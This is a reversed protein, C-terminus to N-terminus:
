NVLRHLNPDLGFTTRVREVGDWVADLLLEEAAGFALAAVALATLARLAFGVTLINLQPMTRSLFALATGMLFLAILVPGALRIGLIFASALMEVLLLVPSEDFRFSLVPIMEFTDLLAAVTARHGGAILFVITFSITYVQGTISAQSNQSPDFINALALGAQRGVMLGGVEAGLLILSFSLGIIAGIMLEAAGGVLVTPFDLGAPMQDQLMPFMMAALVVVLAIRIRVPIMQSGFVPAVIVLGSVRILILGYAPLSLLIDFPLRPM